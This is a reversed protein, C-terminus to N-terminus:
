LIIKWTSCEYDSGLRMYLAYSCACPAPVVLKSYNNQLRGEQNVGSQRNFNNAVALRAGQRVGVEGAIDATTPAKLSEQNDVFNANLVKREVVFDNNRLSRTESGPYCFFTTLNCLHPNCHNTIVTLM